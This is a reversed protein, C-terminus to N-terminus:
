VGNSYSQLRIGSTWSSSNGGLIYGGDITEFMSRLDDSGNGGIINQWEINGIFNLKVIWYDTTYEGGQNSEIKDGGIGSQSSGGVLYGGDLSQLISYLYDRSTGGITNQWEINGSSNLKVVWYDTGFPTDDILVETKDGGIGSYSYGGLIYGGDTTQQLSNLQDDSNGGITNQWEIEGFSSLKLVWYDLAGLCAETKDGGIGSNSYGGLIYGGDVTEQVSTLEEHGGGGITNQWQINGTSDLKVVWYDYVATGIFNTEIKDGSIESGSWGGLIYGGDSTQKISYLFDHDNGGISNGNEVNREQFNFYYNYSNFDINNTQLLTKIKNLKIDDITRSDYEGDYTYIREICEIPEFYYTIRETTDRTEIKEKIVTHEKKCSIIFLFASLFIVLQKMTYYKNNFISYTKM